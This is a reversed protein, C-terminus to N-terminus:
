QKLKNLIMLFTPANAYRKHHSTLLPIDDVVVMHRTSPQSQFDHLRWMEELRGWSSSSRSWSNTRCKMEPSDSPSILTDLLSYNLPNFPQAYPTKLCNGCNRRSSLTTQGFLSDLCDLNIM